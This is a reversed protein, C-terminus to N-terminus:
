IISKVVFKELEFDIMLGICSWKKYFYLKLNIWLYFKDWVLEFGVCFFKCIIDFIFKYICCFRLFFICFNLIGIYLLIIM